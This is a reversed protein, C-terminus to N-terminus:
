RRQAVQLFRAHGRLLKMGIKGDPKDTPVRLSSAALTDLPKGHCLLVPM